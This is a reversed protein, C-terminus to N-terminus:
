IGMEIYSKAIKQIAVVYASTRFDSIEKKSELIERMEQFATRMTEDL